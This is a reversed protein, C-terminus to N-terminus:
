LLRKHYNQMFKYVKSRSQISKQAGLTLCTLASAALAYQASALTDKTKIWEALYAGVFTDGAATTDIPQISYALLHKVQHNNYIYVGQSGLTIICTSINYQDMFVLIKEKDDYKNKILMTCEIENLILIDINMLLSHSFECVPAPNFVVTMGKEKALKKAYEIMDLNTELQILLYDQATANLFAREIQTSEIYHNAGANLIIRNDNKEVLIMAMGTNTQRIEVYNTNVHNEKLSKLLIKGMFDNGICGILICEQENKALAVAQNAGKGGSNSLFSSGHITEGKVPLRDTTIVFDMNLSGLVYVKASM